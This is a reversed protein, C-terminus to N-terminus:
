ARTVAFTVETGDLLCSSAQPEDTYAVSTALVSDPSIWSTRVVVRPPASVM